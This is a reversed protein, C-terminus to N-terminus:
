SISIISLHPMFYNNIFVHYCKNLIFDAFLLYFYATPPSHPPPMHKPGSTEQFQFPLPLLQEPSLIESYDYDDTDDEESDSVPHAAPLTAMHRMKKVQIM